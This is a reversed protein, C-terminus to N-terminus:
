REMPNGSATSGANTCRRMPSCAASAPRTMLMWYMAVNRLRGHAPRMLSWAPAFIETSHPMSAQVSLPNSSSTASANCELGDSVNLASM